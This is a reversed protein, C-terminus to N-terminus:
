FLLVISHIFITFVTKTKFTIEKGFEVQFERINCFSSFFTAEM